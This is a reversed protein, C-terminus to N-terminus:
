HAGFRQGMDRKEAARGGAIEMRAEAARLKGVNSEEKSASVCGRGGEQTGQKRKCACHLCMMLTPGWNAM